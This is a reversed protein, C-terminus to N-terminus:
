THLPVSAHLLSAKKNCQLNEQVNFNM